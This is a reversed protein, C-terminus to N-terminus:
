KIDVNDEMNVTGFRNPAHCHFANNPLMLLNGIQMAEFGLLHLIRNIVRIEVNSPDVHHEVVMTLVLHTDWQM